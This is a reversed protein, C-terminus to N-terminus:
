GSTKKSYITAKVPTAALFEATPTLVAIGFAKAFSGLYVEGFFTLFTVAPSADTQFRCVLSFAVAKRPFLPLIYAALGYHLQQALM